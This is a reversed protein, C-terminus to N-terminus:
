NGYLKIAADRFVDQAKSGDGPFGAHQVLWVTVLKQGPDISM